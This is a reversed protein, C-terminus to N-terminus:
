GTRIDIDNKIAGGIGVMDRGGCLCSFCRGMKLRIWAGRWGLGCLSPGDKPLSMRLDTIHDLGGCLGM